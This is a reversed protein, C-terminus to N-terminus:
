VGQRSQYLLEEVSVREDKGEIETSAGLFLIDVDRSGTM